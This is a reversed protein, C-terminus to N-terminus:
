WKTGMQAQLCLSHSKTQTKGELLFAPVGVTSRSVCGPEGLGTALDAFAVHWWVLSQTGAGQGNGLSALSHRDVPTGAWMGPFGLSAACDPPTLQQVCHGGWRCSM